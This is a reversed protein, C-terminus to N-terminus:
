YGKSGLIRLDKKLSDISENGPAIINFWSDVVSKHSNFFDRLARDAAVDMNVKTFRNRGPKGSYSEKFAKSAAELKPSPDILVSEIFQYLGQDTLFLLWDYSQALVHLEKNYNNSTFWNGHNSVVGVSLIVGPYDSLLSADIIERLLRRYPAIRFTGDASEIIGQFEGSRSRVKQLSSVSQAVYAGQKAKEITQPGRTMGEEVGVRKCEFIAFPDRYLEVIALSCNSDDLYDVHAVVPGVKTEVLVAANRKIDKSTIIQNSKWEGGPLPNLQRRVKAPTVPRSYPHLEIERMSRISHLSFEVNHVIKSNAYEPLKREIVLHNRLNWSCLAYFTVVEVLTGLARGAAKKSDQAYHFVTSALNKQLADISKYGM